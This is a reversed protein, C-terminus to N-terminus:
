RRTKKTVMEVATSHSCKGKDRYGPCSCAMRGDPGQVVNYTGHDGIVNFRGGDLPEVRGNRVLMKAKELMRIQYRSYQITTRRMESSVM